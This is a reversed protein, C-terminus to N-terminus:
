RGGESWWERGGEKGGERSVMNSLWRRTDRVFVDDSSPRRQFAFLVAVSRRLAAAQHATRADRQPPLWQHVPADPSLSDATPLAPHDSYLRHIYSEVQLRCRIFSCIFLHIFSHLNNLVVVRYELAISSRAYCLFVCVLTSLCVSLCVFLCVCVCLWMPQHYSDKPHFNGWTCPQNNLRAIQLGIWKWQAVAAAGIKIRLNCLLFSGVLALIPWFIDNLFCLLSQM